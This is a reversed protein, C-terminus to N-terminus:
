KPIVERAGAVQTGGAAEDGRCLAHRRHLRGSRAQRRWARGQAYNVLTAEYIREFPDPDEAPRSVASASAANSSAAGGVEVVVEVRHAISLRGVAPDYDAPTIAIRAVRQNRMWGLELLRARVGTALPPPGGEASGGGGTMEDSMAETFAEAEGAAPDRKQVRLPALALRVDDLVEAATASASVTVEGTPPVAVTVVREPLLPHGQPAVGEYGELSLRMSRAGARFPELIPEPVDVVFRVAGPSSPLARVNSPRPPAAHGPAAFVAVAFLALWARSAPSAIGFRPPRQRPPSM